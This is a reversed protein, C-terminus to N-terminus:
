PSETTIQGALYSRAARSRIPTQAAGKVGSSASNGVLKFSSHGGNASRVSATSTSRPRAVSSSTSGSSASTVAVGTVAATLAQLQLKGNPSVDGSSSSSVMSYGSISSATSQRHTNSSTPTFSGSAGSTGSTANTAAAKYAELDRETQLSKLRLSDRTNSLALNKKKLALNEEKLQAVQKVKQRLSLNQASDVNMKSLRSLEDNSLGHKKILISVETQLQHEVQLRAAESEALEEHLKKMDLLTEERAIDAKVYAERYKEIDARVQKIWEDTDRTHNTLTRLEEELRLVEKSADENKSLDRIVREQYEYEDQLAKIIAVKGINEAELFEVQMNLRLIQDELEAIKALLGSHDAETKKVFSDQGVLLTNLAASSSELSAKEELLIAHDAKSISCETTHYLLVKLIAESHQKWIEMPSESSEDIEQTSGSKVFLEKLASEMFQCKAELEQIRQENVKADTEKEMLIRDINVELSEIKVMQDKRDETLKVRESEWVEENRHFVEAQKAAALSVDELERIRKQQQSEREKNKINAKDFEAQLDIIDKEYSETLDILRDCEQKMMCNSESMETLRATTELIEQELLEMREQKEKSQREKEQRQAIAEERESEVKKLEVRVSEFTKMVETYEQQKKELRLKLDSILDDSEKKQQTAEESIDKCKIAMEEQAKQSTVKLEQHQEELTKLAGSIAQIELQSDDYKAQLTAREKQVRLLEDRNQGLESTLHAISQELEQQIQSFEQREKSLQIQHKQQELAIAEVSKAHEKIQVELENETAQHKEKLQEFEMRYSQLREDLQDREVQLQDIAEKNTSKLERQNKELIQIRDEAIDIQAQLQDREQRMKARLEEVLRREKELEEELERIRRELEKVKRRWYDSDDKARKYDAEFREKDVRQQEQVHVLDRDCDEKQRELQQQLQQNEQSFKDRQATTAAQQEELSLKTRTLLKELEDIRKQLQITKGIKDNVAAVAKESKELSAKLVSHRVGLEAIESEKSALQTLISNKEKIAGQYMAEGKKQKEAMIDLDKQHSIKYKEFRESLEALERKLKEEMKSVGYTTLKDSSKSRATKPRRTYDPATSGNSNVSATDTGDDDIVLSPLSVSLSSREYPGNSTSSPGYYQRKQQDNFRKTKGLFGFRKYPDDDNDKVDYHNPGPTIEIM